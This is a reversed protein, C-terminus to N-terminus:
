GGLILGAIEVLQQELKYRLNEDGSNVAHASAVRMAYFLTSPEARYLDVMKLNNLLNSLKEALDKYIPLDGILFFILRWKYRSVSPNLLADDIANEVITEM